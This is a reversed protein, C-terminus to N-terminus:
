LTTFFANTLFINQIVHVNAAVWLLARLVYKCVTHEQQRGQRILNLFYPLQIMGRIHVINLHRSCEVRLICGKHARGYYNLISYTTHWFMSFTNYRHTEPKVNCKYDKQADEIVVKNCNIQTWDTIRGVGLTSHIAWNHDPWSCFFILQSFRSLFFIFIKQCFFFQSSFIPVGVYKEVKIVEMSLKPVPRPGTDL